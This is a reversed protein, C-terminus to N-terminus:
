NPRRGNGWDTLSHLLTRVRARSPAGGKYSECDHTEGFVPRRWRLSTPLALRRTTGPSPRRLARSALDEDNLDAGEVPTRPEFPIGLRLGRMFLSSCPCRSRPGPLTGDRPPVIRAIPISMADSICVTAM